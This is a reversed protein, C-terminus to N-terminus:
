LVRVQLFVATYCLCCSSLHIKLNRSFRGWPSFTRNEKLPNNEPVQRQVYGKGQCDQLLQDQDDDNLWLERDYRGNSWKAEKHQKTM